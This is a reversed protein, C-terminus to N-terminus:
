RLLALGVNVLTPVVIAAILLPTDVYCHRRGTVRAEEAVEALLGVADISAWQAQAERRLVKTSVAPLVLPKVETSRLSTGVGLVASASGVSAAMSEGFSSLKSLESSALVAKSTATMSALNECQVAFRSLAPCAPIRLPSTAVHSIDDPEM